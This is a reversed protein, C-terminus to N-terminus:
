DKIAIAEIELLLGPLMLDAITVATSAPPNVPFYEKRVENMGPYDSTNKLYVTVKVIDGMTAGAEKLIRKINEFTQRTQAKIDNPGILNGDKDMGVTGSVFIMNGKKVANSYPGIPQWLDKEGLIEKM